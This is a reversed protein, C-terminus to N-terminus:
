LSRCAETSLDRIFAVVVLWTFGVTEGGALTNRLWASAARHEGAEENVAHILVNADVLLM